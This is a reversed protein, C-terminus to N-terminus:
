DRAYLSVFNRLVRAPERVAAVRAAAIQAELTEPAFYGADRYRTIRLVYGDVDLEPHFQTAYLNQRMRFMQVPCADSSALLVAGEPLLTVAEKHGVFARFPDPLGALLPDARGAETLRIDVAGAKEAYTGDVLGGQHRGLTGVGYCAGLLPFDAAVVDDLLRALDAEVRHQVPSKTDEPDSSTFPSGGLLIGSWRDLDLSPLPAQEVRISELEGPRLGGFAAFAAAEDAVLDDESRTSLLLFPRV